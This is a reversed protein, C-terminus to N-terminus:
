LREWAVFNALVLLDLESLGKILDGEALHEASDFHVVIHGDAVM